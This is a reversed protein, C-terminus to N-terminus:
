GAGIFKVLAGTYRCLNYMLYINSILLINYLVTSRELVPYGYITSFSDHCFAPYLYFLFGAPIDM